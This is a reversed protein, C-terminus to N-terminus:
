APVARGGVTLVIARERPTVTHGHRLYNVPVAPDTWCTRCREAGCSSHEATKPCTRASDTPADHSTTGASLGDVVPPPDGFRLASPRVTVNPLEALRRLEPIWAPFRYVRTPFWFRCAPLSEAVRRWRVIAARNHFDGSDHVRFFQLGFGDIFEAIAGLCRDPSAKLYAFRAWQADRVNRFMYTGQQAYCGECISGPGRFEAPCAGAKGAPISWSWADMASTWTLLAHSRGNWMFRPSEM